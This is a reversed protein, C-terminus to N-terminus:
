RVFWWAVIIICRIVVGHTSRRSAAKSESQHRRLPELTQHQTDHMRASKRYGDSLRARLRSMTAISSPPAENRGVPMRRYLPSLLTQSDEYSVYAVHSTRFINRIDEPRVKLSTLITFSAVARRPIASYWKNCKKTSVWNVSLAGASFWGCLLLLIYDFKSNEIM